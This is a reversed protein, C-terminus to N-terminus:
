GSTNFSISVGAFVIPDLESDNTDISQNIWSLSIFPNAGFEVMNLINKIDNSGKTKIPRHHIMHAITYMIDFFDIFSMFLFMTTLMMTIKNKSWGARALDLRLMNWHTDTPSLSYLALTLISMSHYEPSWRNHHPNIPIGITMMQAIPRGNEAKIISM